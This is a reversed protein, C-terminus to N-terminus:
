NKIIAPFCAPITPRRGPFGPDQCDNLVHGKGDDLKLAYSWKGARDREIKIDELLRGDRWDVVVSYHEHDANLPTWLFQTAFMSGRDSADLEDWTLIQQYSNIQPLTLSLTSSLVERKTVEDVFVIEPKFCPDPGRHVLIFDWTNNNVWGGPAVYFYSSVPCLEYGSLSCAVAFLVVSSIRRTRTKEIWWFNWLPHLLLLFILAIGIGVVTRSKPLFALAIGVATGGLGLWRDIPKRSSVVEPNTVVVSAPSRVHQAKPPKPEPRKRNAKSRKGV